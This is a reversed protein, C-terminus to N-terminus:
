SEKQRSLMELLGIVGRDRIRPSLMLLKFWKIMQEISASRTMEVFPMILMMNCLLPMLPVQKQYIEFIEGTVPNYKLQKDLDNYPGTYHHGPLTWGGKPKPLKGIAKHIDLGSGRYYDM